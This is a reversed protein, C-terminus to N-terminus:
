KGYSFHITDNEIIYNIIYSTGNTEDDSFYSILNITITGSLQTCNTFNLPIDIFHNPVYDETAIYKDETIDVTLTYVNECQNIAIGQGEISLITELYNNYQSYIAKGIGVSIIVTQETKSHKPLEITLITSPREKNVDQSLILITDNKCSPLLLLSLFLFILLRKKM